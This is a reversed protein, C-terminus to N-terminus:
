NRCEAGLELCKSLANILIFIFLHRHVLVCACLGPACSGVYLQYWQSSLRAQYRLPLALHMEPLPPDICFTQPNRQMVSSYATKLHSIM